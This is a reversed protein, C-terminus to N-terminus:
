DWGLEHLREDGIGMHHALEHVVTVTVERVVDAHDQCIAVIANRYLTIRDPLVGFYGTDRETLPVGDYVGLVYPDDPPSEDEVLVVVNDLFALLKAPVRDLADCVLAEFEARSVDVMADDQERGQGSSPDALRNTVAGDSGTHQMLAASRCTM